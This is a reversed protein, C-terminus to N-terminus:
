LRRSEAISDVFPMKEEVVVDPKLIGAIQGLSKAAEAVKAASDWLVKLREFTKDKPDDLPLSRLNVSDLLEAMELMKRNLAFHLAEAGAIDHIKNENTM